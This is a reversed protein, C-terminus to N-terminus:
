IGLVKKIIDRRKIITRGYSSYDRIPNGIEASMSAVFDDRNREIGRNYRSAAIVLQEDTINVTDTIGPNDYVILERLHKAVVSINFDDDLLCNALQLQQTSSLTRPDIGLTEAAARLQIALSGVSTANSKTNGTNKFYDILQYAQLVGYAKAREPTGAVEAVAVGGLLLAPIREKQAYKLIRDKNYQLFAAKYAWLRSEGTVLVEDDPFFKWLAFDGGDWKPFNSTSNIKCFKNIM